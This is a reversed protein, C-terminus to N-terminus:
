DENIKRGTLSIFLDELTMKRCEFSTLHFDNRHIFDMFGRISTVIENVLLWGKKSESDWKIERFGIGSDFELVAPNEFLSFEIIEGKDHENLLRDLSGRALFKGHDMIVIEDCLFSAEEMYHTTLVLTTGMSKKLELLIHWLERRSTPDLGTTPEDLLLLPPNNLLSIALALRQRQGGSLNVTYTGAKEQLGTLGIVEEVRDTTLGYFSVFLRLTERVSLKDIFRTEQLSIGLQRHLFDTNGKWTKGFLRIVGDDPDQLGEIMEVLTTKGAGNPGLLALFTGKGITLSIDNVAVVEKFRKTVRDLRIVANHPEAISTGADYEPSM